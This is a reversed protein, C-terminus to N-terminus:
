GQTGLKQLRDNARLLEFVPTIALQQDHLTLVECLLAYAEGDVQWVGTDVATGHRRVIAEDAECFLGDRAVGYGAECLFRTIYMAQALSVFHCKGAARSHLVELTLHNDMSIRRCLAPAMPLLKTKPQPKRSMSATERRRSIKSTM